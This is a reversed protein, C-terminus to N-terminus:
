IRKKFRYKWWCDLEENLKWRRGRKVFIFKVRHEKCPDEFKRLLNRAASRRIEIRDAESFRNGIETTTLGEFAPDGANEWFYRLMEKGTPGISYEMWGEAFRVYLLKGDIYISEDLEEANKPLQKRFNSPMDRSQVASRRDEDLSHGNHITLNEIHFHTHNEIVPVNQEM